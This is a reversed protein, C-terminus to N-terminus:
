STPKALQDTAKTPLSVIFRTGVETPFEVILQGGHLEVIQRSIYLGLGMGVFNQGEHAQYFQDFIRERREPPIGIGQDTVAIRIVDQSPQAIEVDVPGGNPSYKIANDLLNTLVQELRLPDALIPISSPAQVTIHHRATTMQVTSATQEVLGVIDTPKLDLILRGVQIRSTDLLQTILHGLKTSQQEIAEFARRIRAPDFAAHKDMHRLGLQAFGRLGTVPTKLEHSAAALFEDRARIAEEAERRACQEQALLRDKQENALKLDVLLQAQQLAIAAQNAAVRLILLDTDTLSDPSHTGAIVINRTGKHGVPMTAIHLMGNGMPNAISQVSNSSDVQCLSNLMSSIEMSQEASYLGQPTRIVEIAETAGTLRVYVIDLHLISLLVDSLSEAIGQPTYGKWLAPLTTFAVLDRLCRRLSLMDESAMDM